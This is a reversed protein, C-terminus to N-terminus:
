RAQRPPPQNSREGLGTEDVFPHLAFEIKSPTVSGFRDYDPYTRWSRRRAIWRLWVLGSGVRVPRWAFWWRWPEPQWLLPKRWAYPYLVNGSGSYPRKDM